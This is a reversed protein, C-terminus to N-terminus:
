HCFRLNVVCRCDLRQFPELGHAAHWAHVRVGNMRQVDHLLRDVVCHVLRERAEALLDGDRHALVARHLDLVFAAADRDVHMRHLLLGRHFDGEGHQVRAALERAGAVADVVDGAAQVAHADRDRIRKGLAALDRHEAVSVLVADRELAALERLLQLAFPDLLLTGAGYHAQPGVRLVEVRGVDRKGLELV